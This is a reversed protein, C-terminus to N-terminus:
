MANCLAQSYYASTLGEYQNQFKAKWFAESHVVHLCPDQWAFYLQLLHKEFAEEVEINLGLDELIEQADKQVLSPTPNGIDVSVDLL